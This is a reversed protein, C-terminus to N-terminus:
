SMIFQNVFTEMGSRDFNSQELLNLLSVSIKKKEIAMCDTGEDCDPGQYKGGIWYYPRQRADTREEIADSYRRFGLRSYQVGRIQEFPLNPVNINVVGFSPCFKHGGLSLFRKLFNAAAIYYIEDGHSWQDIVSSVAIAPVSHFAAERAAAVTGSYYVDQGLNAGRNIGSIVADFQVNKALYGLGMFVCDAPFGSCGWINKSIEVTRLPDNLTLSHGTTSRERLPAVVYLEAVTRLANILIQIGDAHIGDDNSLLVKLM